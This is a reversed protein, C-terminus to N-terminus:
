EFVVRKLIWGRPDVKISSIPYEIAGQGGKMELRIIKGEVEVEVPMPFETKYPTKWFIKTKENAQQVFLEPLEPQRLYVNFFWRLQMGSEREVINIFEDTTVFRAQIGKKSREMEERPYAMRRLSRFFVEDGILYRLTHLVCAGKDYIDGDSKKYDPEAMYVQYAFKPELPAIAKKNKVRNMRERMQELYAEIGAVEEVYLTDMFSQFGEHLWFDRWDSATVLNGWWEHGLEHLMLWDFGYENNKFDSGYAIITSHEMGLYPTEAIGLKEKRFPYPGLYKEYFALFRKTQSVIDKAKEYSEPLAYFIIPFVTGDISKYKDEILKYPAINLTINYNNIPSSMQWYFTSKGELSSEIKRLKGNSAVYLGKPVTVKLNVRDPRDSPHDKVPLWLDAGDGQCAVGIWDSGDATKTWVFGGVWPPNPAVRPAGSYSIEVSVSEGPQKTEMFKIWLKGGRREFQLERNRELVQRVDFNEKLDVVFRDVPQVIKARILVSASIKKDSPFVEVSIDYSTVDYAAQEYILVGGSEDPRDKFERQSFSSINLFFLLLLLRVLM